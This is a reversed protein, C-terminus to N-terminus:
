QSKVPPLMDVVALKAEPKELPSVHGEAAITELKAYRHGFPAQEDAIPERFVLLQRNDLDLVWYDPVSAAAYLHSKVQQDYELSSFSVEIILKATTPHNDVFEELRGAVVSVDPEPEQQDGIQIPLQTRVWYEESFIEALLRQLRGIVFSHHSSQPTLQVIEGNVLEVRQENFFGHEGLLHYEEITWRKRSPGLDSALAIAVPAHPLETTAQQPITSM